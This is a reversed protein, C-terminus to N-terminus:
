ATASAASPAGTTRTAPRTAGSTSWRFGSRRKKRSTPLRSADRRRHHLRARGHLAHAARSEHRRASAGALLHTRRHRRARRRRCTRRAPLAKRRAAADAARRQVIRAHGVGDACADRPRRHDALGHYRRLARAGPLHRESRASGPLERRPVAAAHRTPSIQWLHMVRDPEPYPLPRLLVGYVVTYIATCAGIGLGLTLIAVVTFGPTKRLLRLAHRLDHWLPLM